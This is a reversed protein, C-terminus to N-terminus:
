ASEDQTGSANKVDFHRLSKLYFFGATVLGIAAVLEGITWSRYKQLLCVIGLALNMAAFIFSSACAQVVDRRTMVARGSMLWAGAFLFSFAFFAIFGAWMPGILVEAASGPLDPYDHEGAVAYNVALNLLIATGSIVWCLGAKSISIPARAIANGTM